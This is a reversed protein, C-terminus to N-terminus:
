LFSNSSVVMLYVEIEEPLLICTIIKQHNIILVESILIFSHLVWICLIYRLLIVNVSIDCICLKTILGVGVLSGLNGADWKWREPSLLIVCGSKCGEGNMVAENKKNATKQPYSALCGHIDRAWIWLIWGHATCTTFAEQHCWKRATTLRGRSLHLHFVAAGGCCLVPWVAPLSSVFM